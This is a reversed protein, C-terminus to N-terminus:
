VKQKGATGGETDGVGETVLLIVGVGVTVLLTVGVGVIM